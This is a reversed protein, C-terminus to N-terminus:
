RGYRRHHHQPLRRHHTGATPFPQRVRGPDGARLSPALEFELDPNDTLTEVAARLNAIPQRFGETAARLVADRKGLVALEATVDEFTVVYGNISDDEQLIVSIQGELLYRGDTTAGVFQAATGHQHTLHRGEKVRLTLRELTHLIPAKTIM